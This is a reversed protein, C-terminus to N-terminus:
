NPTRKCIPTRGNASDSAADDGERWEQTNQEREYTTRPMMISAARATGEGGVLVGAPPPAGAEGKGGPAGRGGM